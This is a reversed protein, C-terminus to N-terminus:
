ADASSKNPRLKHKDLDFKKSYLYYILLSGCFGIIFGVLVDSPYHVGLYLRSFAVLAAYIVTVAALPKNLFRCLVGAAAFSCTTHGSAFSYDTPKAILPIIDSYTDFPRARAVVNKIIVNNILFCFAISSLTVIGMMRTKKFCMLILSLVIWLIGANVLLSSIEMIPNLFDVRLNEQIFLLIAHDIEYIKDIIQDM